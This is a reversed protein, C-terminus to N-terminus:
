SEHHLHIIDTGSPYDTIVWRNTIWKGGVLVLETLMIKTKMINILTMMKIMVNLEIM